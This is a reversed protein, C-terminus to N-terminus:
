PYACIERLCCEECQPTPRCVDKGHRVLLAHYENFIRADMPLADHFLQQYEAYGSAGDGNGLRELIRRTYADIVFVPKDAAYLLIDDATEEGIGNIALLEHRLAPGDMKLMENLDGDYADWLYTIFAKLRRAKVNFYGSPRILQALEDISIDRLGERSLMGEAKLNDIAKAVNTWSTAQTLIAGVIIEFPSDGPWWDQPGYAELLREYVDMLPHPSADESNM